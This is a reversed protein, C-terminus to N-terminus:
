GRRELAERVKQALEQRRYPKHLIPGPPDQDVADSGNRVGGYGTTLLVALDPRLAKAEAALLDGTLAGPMVLDTFLLDFHEPGRLMSM